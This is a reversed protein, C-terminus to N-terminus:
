RKHYSLYEVNFILLKNEIKSGWAPVKPSGILQSAAKRGRSKIGWPNQNIDFRYTCTKLFKSLNRFLSNIAIRPVAEFGPIVHTLILSRINIINLLKKPSKGYTNVEELCRLNVRARARGRHSPWTRMDQTLCGIGMSAWRTGRPVGYGKIGKITIISSTLLTMRGPVRATRSAALITAPWKSSVNIPDRAGLTPMDIRRPIIPPRTRRM